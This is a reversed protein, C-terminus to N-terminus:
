FDVKAYSTESMSDACKVMVPGLERTSVVGEVPGSFSGVQMGRSDKLFDLFPKFTLSGTRADFSWTGSLRNTEQKNATVMQLFTHDPKVLLTVEICSSGMTYKGVVQSERSGRCSVTSMLVMALMPLIALPKRM